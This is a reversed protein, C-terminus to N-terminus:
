RQHLVVMVVGSPNRYAYGAAFSIVLAGSGSFTVDDCNWYTGYAHSKQSGGLTISLDVAGESGQGFCVLVRYTGSPLNASWGNAWTLYQQANYVNNGMDGVMHGGFAICEWNGSFSLNMATLINARSATLEPYGSSANTRYAGQPFRFYPQGTRASSISTATTTAPREALTGTKLNKDGGAYFHKPAVVDGPVANALLLKSKTLGGGPNMLDAM